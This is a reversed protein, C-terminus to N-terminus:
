FTDRLHKMVEPDATLQIKPTLPAAGALIKECHPSFADAMVCVDYFGPALNAAFHGQADTELMLDRHKVRERRGSSDARIVIQAKGISAGESDAVTGMINAPGAHLPSCSLAILTISLNWFRWIM